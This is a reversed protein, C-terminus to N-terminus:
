NAYGTNSDLTNDTDGRYCYIGSISHGGGDYHGKFWYCKNNLGFTGIPIWDKFKALVSEDFTARGYSDVTVRSVVNVNLVIDATQKFYVGEYHTYYGLNFSSMYTLSALDQATSILFPDDKTGSGGSFTGYRSKNYEWDEAASVSAPLLLLFLAVIASLNIKITNIAAKM